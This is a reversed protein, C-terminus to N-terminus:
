AYKPLRPRINPAKGHAGLRPTKPAKGPLPPIPFQFDPASEPKNKCPPDYTGPGPRAPLGAVGDIQRVRKRARVPGPNDSKKVMGVAIGGFGVTIRLLDPM